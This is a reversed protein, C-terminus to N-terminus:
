SSAPKIHQNVRFLTDPDWDSKIKSFRNWVATTYADKVREEGEQGVFNVYVGKSFEQTFNHFENAWALCCEDGSANQCLHNVGNPIPVKRDAYLCINM